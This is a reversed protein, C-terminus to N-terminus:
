LHTPQRGVPRLRRDPRSWRRSRIGVSVVRRDRGPEDAVGAVLYEYAMTSLKTKSLQEFEYLSRIAAM